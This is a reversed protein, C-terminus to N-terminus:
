CGRVPVSLTRAPRNIRPVLPPSILVRKEPRCPTDCTEAEDHPRWQPSPRSAKSAQRRFRADCYFTTNVIVLVRHVNDVHPLAVRLGLHLFGQDESLQVAPCDAVGRSAM